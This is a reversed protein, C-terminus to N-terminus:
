FQVGGVVLCSTEMGHSSCCEAGSRSELLGLLCTGEEDFGNLGKIHQFLEFDWDAVCCSNGFRIDGHREGDVAICEGRRDNYGWRGIGVWDM